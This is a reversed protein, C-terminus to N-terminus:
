LPFAMIAKQINIYLFPWPEVRMFAAGMALQANGSDGGPLWSKHDIKQFQHKM